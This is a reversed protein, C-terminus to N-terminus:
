TEDNDIEEDDPEEDDESSEFEIDGDAWHFKSNPM